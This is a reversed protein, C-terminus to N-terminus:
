RGVWRWGHSALANAIVQHGAADPHDLDPDLLWRADRTGDGKFPVFLGACIAGTRAAAACLATNTLLTARRAMVDYSSSRGAAAAHTAPEKFVNWYTTVLVEVPRGVAARVRAVITTVNRGVTDAAQDFCGQCGDDQWEWRAPALDNAGITVTVIDAGRLVQAVPGGPRLSALLDATTTGGVGLNRATTPHGTRSTVLRAYRGPFTWCDCPGGSVVSDGLSVVHWATPTATTVAALRLHELRVADHRQAPLPTHAGARPARADDGDLATGSSLGGGVLLLLALLPALRLARRRATRAQPAGTDM